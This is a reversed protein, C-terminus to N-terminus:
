SRLGKEFLPCYSSVYPENIVHGNLSFEGRINIRVQDGGVAIVRKIYADCARDRLGTVLAVLPFNLLACKVISPETKSSLISDFAYPSNFVVIEGRRPTRANFSLKEILLRDNIQLGPLM